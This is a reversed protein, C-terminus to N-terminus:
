IGFIITLVLILTSIVLNSLSAVIPISFNDPDLGRKFSVILLLFTLFQVILYGLINIILVILIILGMGKATWTILSASFAYVIHLAVGALGIGIFDTWVDEDKIAAVKPEATGLSLDTSIANAFISCEDGLTDILAPYILFLQPLNKLALEAKSLIGGTFSNITITLSQIPLAQKLIKRYAVKKVNKIVLFIIFAFYLIVPILLFYTVKTIGNSAWKQPKIIAVIGAYLLTTFLNNITSMTPYVWIDPNLKKKFMFFALISSIQSSFLSAMALTLIPIIFFPIPNLIRNSGLSVLNTIYSLIGITLANLTGITLVAGMLTSYKQTNKPYNPKINGLHLGTGLGSVLIGIGGDTALLPPYLLIVLPTAQNLFLFTASSGVGLGVLDFLLALFAQIAIAFTLRLLAPRWFKEKLKSWQM